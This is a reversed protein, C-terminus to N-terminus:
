DMRIGSLDRLFTQSLDEMELELELEKGAQELVPEQPM